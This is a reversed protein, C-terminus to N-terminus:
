LAVAALAEAAAGAYLTLNARALDPGPAEAGGEQLAGLLQAQALREAEIEVAQVTGRFAAIDPDGAWSKLDRRVLRLPRSVRRTWDAIAAELAAIDQEGLRRGLVLGCFLALLLINVDRGDRDQLEICRPSVGPRAYIALTFQWFAETPAPNM